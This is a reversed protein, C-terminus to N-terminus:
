RYITAPGADSRVMRRFSDSVGGTLAGSAPDLEWHGRKGQSEM